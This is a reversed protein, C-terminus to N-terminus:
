KCKMKEFIEDISVPRFCNADVGVDYQKRGNSINDLNYGNGITHIHGHLHISNHYMGRWDSIPYHFLILKRKEIKLEKYDAIENFVGYKSLDKDHNGKILYLNKCNIKRLLNATEESSIRFSCDGLIYLIDNALVKKNINEILAINMEDVDRFPRKCIKIIAEHGLHLDSTFFIEGM